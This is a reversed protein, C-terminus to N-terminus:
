PSVDRECTPCTGAEHLTVHLEDKNAEIQKDLDGIEAKTAPILSLISDLRTAIKDLDKCEIYADELDGLTPLELSGLDKFRRVVSGIRRTKAALSELERIEGLLGDDDWEPIDVKEVGAFKKLETRGRDFRRAYRALTEVEKVADDGDWSPVSLAEVGDLHQLTTGLTSRKKEFGDLVEIEKNLATIGRYYTRVEEVQAMDDDYNEYRNLEEKVADLDTRRVKRTSRVERREKDCNRLATQVDTLRGVDSIAEAALSGVENLLFLPHFQDSIQVNISDRGVKMEGFGAEAVHPLSGRGVSELVEGNIVYGNHGGGKKWILNFEPCDLEVEAHDATGGKTVFDDGERNVLAGQIARVMASKGINSKGVVVTFGDIEIEADEVSQFNQIRVKM